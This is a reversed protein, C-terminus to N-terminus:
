QFHQLKHALYATKWHKSSYLEPEFQQIIKSLQSVTGLGAGKMQLSVVDAGEQALQLGISGVPKLSVVKVTHQSVSRVLGALATEAGGTETSTIVYLIKM